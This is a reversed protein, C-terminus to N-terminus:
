VDAQPLTLLYPGLIFENETRPDAFVCIPLPQHSRITIWQRVEALDGRLQIPKTALAEVVILDLSTVFARHEVITVRTLIQWFGVGCGFFVTGFRHKTRGAILSSAIRVMVSLRSGLSLM